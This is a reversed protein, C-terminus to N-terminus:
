GEEEREVARLVRWTHTWDDIRCIPRYECYECATATGKRYPDVSTAGGFIRGAIEKLRSEVDDLLKLFEARPLAEKLGRFLEGKNTLRYNFQDGARASDLQPLEAADFRGTHRYAKRRAQDPDALAETRSDGSEYKGRLNVYFVGAPVIKEAGL